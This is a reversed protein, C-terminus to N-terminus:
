KIDIMLNKLPLNSYSKGLPFVNIKMYKFTKNEKILHPFVNKKKNTQETKIVHNKISNKRLSNEITFYNEFNSKNEDNLDNIEDKINFLGKNSNNVKNRHFIRKKDKSDM